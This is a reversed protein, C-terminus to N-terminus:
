ACADQVCERALSPQRQLRCQITQAKCMIKTSLIPFFASVRFDNPEMRVLVDYIQYYLLTLWQFLIFYHINTELNSHFNIITFEETMLLGIFFTFYFFLDYFFYFFSSYEFIPLVTLSSSIKCIYCSVVIEGEILWGLGISYWKQQRFLVM